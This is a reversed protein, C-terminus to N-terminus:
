NKFCRVALWYSNSGSWWNLISAPSFLFYFMASPWNFSSSWYFWMTWQYSWNWYDWFYNRVGVVPIKLESIFDSWLNANLLDWKINILWQWDDKSPVHYNEPCPGRRALNTNTFSWWNDTISSNAWSWPWTPNWVFWYTDTLSNLWISWTLTSAEQSSEYLIFWKNRWWQFYKGYSTTWTWVISSWLNCASITYWTWVWWCAMIDDSCTLWSITWDVTWYIVDWLNECDAITKKSITQNNPDFVLAKSNLSWNVIISVLLKAEDSPNSTDLIKKIEENQVASDTWTYISQLKTLLALQNTESVLSDTTWTYAVIWWVPNYTFGWWDVNFISWRYSSPLNSTWNYVLSWSQMINIIDTLSIDWSIITPVALVYTSSWTSVKALLWNYNWKVYATWVKTGAANVQTIISSIWGEM